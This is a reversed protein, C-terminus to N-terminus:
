RRMSRATGRSASAHLGECDTRPRVVAADTHSAAAIPTAQPRAYQGSTSMALWLDNASDYRAGTNLVDDALVSFGGWVLMETGTWVTAGRIVFAGEQGPSAQAHLAGPLLAVALSAAFTTRMMEARRM